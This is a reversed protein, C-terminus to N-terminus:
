VGESIPIKPILPFYGSSIAKRLINLPASNIRILITSSSAFHSDRKQSEFDFNLNLKGSTKLKDSM